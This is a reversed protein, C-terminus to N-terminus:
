KATDGMPAAETKGPKARGNTKATQSRGTHKTTADKTEEKVTQPKPQTQEASEPKLPEGDSQVKPELNLAGQTSPDVAPPVPQATALYFYNSQARNYAIGLGNLKDRFLSRAQLNSDWIVPLQALAKGIVEAGILDTVSDVLKTINAMAEDYQPRISELEAQRDRYMQFLKEVSYHMDAISVTDMNDIEVQPPLQCTNKTYFVDNMGFSLTRKNQFAQVYGVLDMERMLMNLSSGTIDPRIKKEEGSKEERDHAIFVLNKKQMGIARNFEQFKAKLVGYGQLTLSGNNSMKPNERIIFDTMFELLKGVTDVVLTDYETLDESLLKAVDEYSTVDLYDVHNRHQPKVRRLGADFDLLLPKKTTLGWTTKGLGPEGYVLMKIFKIEIPMDGKKILTM